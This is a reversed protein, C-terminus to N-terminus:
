FKNRQRSKSIIQNSKRYRILHSCLPNEAKWVFSIKNGDDTTVQMEVLAWIETSDDSIRQRTRQCIRVISIEMGQSSQLTTSRGDSFVDSTAGNGANTTSIMTVAANTTWLTEKEEFELIRESLQAHDQQLAKTDDEQKEIREKALKLLNKYKVNADNLRKLQASLKAITAKDSISGSNSVTTPVPLAATADSYLQPDDVIDNLALENAM